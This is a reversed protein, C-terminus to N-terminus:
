MIASHCYLSIIFLWGQSNNITVETWNMMRDLTVPFGLLLGSGTLVLGFLLFHIAQILLIQFTVLFADFDTKKFKAM